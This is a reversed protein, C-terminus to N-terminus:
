RSRGGCTVPVQRAKSSSSLWPWSLNTVPIIEYGHHCDQTVNILCVAVLIMKMAKAYFYILKVSFKILNLAEHEGSEIQPFQTMSLSPSM